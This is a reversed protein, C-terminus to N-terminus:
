RSMARAVMAVTRRGCLYWGVARLRESRSQTLLYIDAESTIDFILVEEFAKKRYSAKTCGAIRVWDELSRATEVARKLSAARLYKLNCYPKSALYINLCEGSQLRELANDIKRKSFSKARRVFNRVLEM